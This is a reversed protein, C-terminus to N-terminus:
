RGSGELREWLFRAGYFLLPAFACVFVIVLPVGIWRWLFHGPMGAAVLVVGLASAASLLGYRKVGRRTALNEFDRSRLVWEWEM